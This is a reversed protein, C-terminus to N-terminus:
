NRSRIYKQAEIADLNIQNKLATVNPFKKEDRLLKLFSVRVVKGYLDADYGGIIHTECTVDDSSNVTPNTGINTVGMYHHGDITVISAYIGYKPTLKEEPFKQNITPIGITRGLQKGHLVTSELFYPYGLLENAKEANGSTLLSRIKTSSVPLGDAMVSEVMIANDGFYKALVGPTGRRGKGFTFNAGCIVADVGLETMLIETAFIDAPIDHVDEFKALIAVDIDYSEFIALKEELSTLARAGAKGPLDTPRNTFTWVASLRGHKEADEIATRLLVAHGTHVGDFSGLAISLHKDTFGRHSDEGYAPREVLRQEPRRDRPIYREPLNESPSTEPLKLPPYLERIKSLDYIEM